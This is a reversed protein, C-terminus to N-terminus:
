SDSRLSPCSLSTRVQSQDVVGSLHCVEILVCPEQSMLLLFLTSFKLYDQGVKSTESAYIFGGYHEIIDITEKSSSDLEPKEQCNAPLVNAVFLTLVLLSRKM